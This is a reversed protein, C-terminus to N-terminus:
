RWQLAHPCLLPFLVVVGHMHTGESSIKWKLWQYVPLLWAIEGGWVCAAAIEVQMRLCTELWSWTSKESRNSFSAHLSIYTWQCHQFMPDQVKGQGSILSPCHVIFYIGSIVWTWIPIGTATYWECTTGTGWINSRGTAFTYIVQTRPITGIGSM